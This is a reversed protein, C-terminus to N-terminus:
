GEPHLIRNVIEAQSIGQVQMALAQTVDQPTIEIVGEEGSKVPVLKVWSNFIPSWFHVQLVVIDSGENFRFLEPYGEWAVPTFKVETANFV